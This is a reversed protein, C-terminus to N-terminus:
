TINEFNRSFVIFPTDQPSYMRRREGACNEDASEVRFPHPQFDVTEHLQIGLRRDLPIAAIRGSLTEDFSRARPGTPQRKKRTRSATFSASDPSLWQNALLQGRDQINTHAKVVATSPDDCSQSVGDALGLAFHETSQM